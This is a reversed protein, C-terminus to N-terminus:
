KNIYKEIAAIYRPFYRVADKLSSYFLKTNIDDYQHVLINRAGASPALARALSSPLIKLTALILFSRTYDDPPPTGSARILHFNIDIARTVIRELYREALTMKIDDAVLQTHSTKGLLIKLCDIDSLLGKAKQRVLQKSLFINKSM